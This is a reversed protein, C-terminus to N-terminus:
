GERFLRGYDEAGAPAVRALQLNEEVHAARSMGVLATTVGPASRTFQIATQADTSLHGLPARMEEPLDRAVKGQMISASAVVTVGLSRAAELLPVLAGGPAPQNALTLAEPMALNFPLQAFRLHHSDGGAERALRVISELSHYGKSNPSVRFGNWTAM